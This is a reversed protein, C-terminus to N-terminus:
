EQFINELSTSRSSIPSINNQMSIETFSNQDMYPSQNIILQLTWSFQRRVEMPHGNHPAYANVIAFSGGSCQFKISAYRSTNQSFSLIHNRMKKSVIFGVGAWEPSENGGSLVVLFGFSTTYVDSLPLHTEQICLIDINYDMMYKQLTVLKADTIGEVNWTSISVAGQKVRLQGEHIQTLDVIIRSITTWGHAGRNQLIM